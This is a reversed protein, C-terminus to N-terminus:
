SVRQLRSVCFEISEIAMQNENTSAFNPGEWKCPWADFFNWRAVEVKNGDYCVISGNRRKIPGQSSGVEDYWDSLARDSTFGRRLVINTPKTPGPLMHVTNNEGGEQYQFVETEVKLGEVAQFFGLSMSDVELSFFNGSFPDIRNGTPEAM